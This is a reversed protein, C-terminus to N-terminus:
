SSCPPIIANAASNPLLFLANILGINYWFLIAPKSGPALTDALGYIHLAVLGGLLGIVFPRKKPDDRMMQWGMRGVGILLGVYSILGIVGFDLAVQLFINHAHSFNIGTAANFPYLRLVVQRFSGLGVGTFPFDYVATIAWPWLEQRLNLSSLSGIASDAPPEIWWTQITSPGIITVIAIIATAFIALGWRLMRRRRQANALSREWLLLMLGLSCIAGIWSSRSQTFILVLTAFVATLGTGIWVITSWRVWRKGFFLSILLPWFLIITAALQNTHVGSADAEPLVILQQGFQQVVNRILPVKSLWNTGLLGVFTLAAGLILFGWIAWTAQQKTQVHRALFRWVAIGLLLNTTKSLTLLPDATVLVSLLFTLSWVLLLLNLPSPPLLPPP